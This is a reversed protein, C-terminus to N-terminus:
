RYKLRLDFIKDYVFYCPNECQSEEYRVRPTASDVTIYSGTPLNYEATITYQKNLNVQFTAESSSTRYDWYLISDELNGEYIKIQITSNDYNGALKVKITAKSPETETCESCNVIQGPKECSFGFVMIMLVIAQIYRKM